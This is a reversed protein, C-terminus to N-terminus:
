FALELHRMQIWGVFNGVKPLHYMMKGNPLEVDQRNEAWPTAVHELPSAHPPNEPDESRDALRNWLNVDDQLDRKKDHTLYSVRACRGASVRKCVEIQSLEYDTNHAIADADLWDQKGGGENDGFYPLHWQDVGLLKPTSSDLAEQIAVAHAQIHPEAAGHTRQWLYGDWSTASIIQTQWLGIELWRNLLSKHLRESAEPHEDVYRQLRHLVYNQLDWWLTSADDLPGEELPVGGQMGPQESPWVIPNDTMEIFFRDLTKNIPIARSSASNRSLARHTNQESLNPRWLGTELTTLRHGAPSISDAIVKAWATKM